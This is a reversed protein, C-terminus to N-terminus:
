WSDRPDEYDYLAIEIWQIDEVPEFFGEPYDIDSM